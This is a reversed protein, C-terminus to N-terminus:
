LLCAIHATTTSAARIVGDPSGNESSTQVIGKYISYSNLMRIHRVPLLVSTHYRYIIKCNSVSTEGQQILDIKMDALTILYTKHTLITGTLRRNQLKYATELTRSGSFDSYRVTHLDSIKRLNHLM